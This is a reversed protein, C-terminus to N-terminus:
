KISVHLGMQTHHHNQCMGSIFGIWSHCQTAVFGFNSNVSEIYYFVAKRHSCGAATLATSVAVVAIWFKWNNCSSNCFSSYYHNITIMEQMAFMVHSYICVTAYM